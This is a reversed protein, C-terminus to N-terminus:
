FAYRVGLGTVSNSNHLYGAAMGDANKNTMYGVYADFKQTFRYDLLASTFVSTGANKSTAVAPAPAGSYDNQAVHYYAVALNLGATLDWAAGYYTLKLTKEGTLYPTTNVNQVLAGAVVKMNVPTGFLSTLGADQTPNSPDDFKMSEYGAKLYVPGIKYRLAVMDMTTDYASLAITGLPQLNATYLGTPNSASILATVTQNTVADSPNSVSFADKFGQHVYQVGFSGAEYGLNFLTAGQASSAGSVGGFKTMVGVNFGGVKLKYRLSNDVRSNDTAGGGGYSGAFGIPTFMQAGQLADYGGVVDLGFATHRGFSLTGYTDHGLGVWSQRAFLQGSVASDASINNGASKNSSMDVVANALAGSPVNIAAELQFSAKWGDGLDASGKLGLRSGSIGGNFMGTAATDGKANARPDVSAPFYPDFNLSHAVTGVGADLIGYFSISSDGKALVPTDAMIPLGACIALLTLTTLKM